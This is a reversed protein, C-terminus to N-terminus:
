TFQDYNLQAKLEFLEDVPRYGKRSASSM